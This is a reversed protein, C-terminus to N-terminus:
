VCCCFGQLKFVFTSLSTCYIVPLPSFRCTQLEAFEQKNDSLVFHLRVKSVYRFSIQNLPFEQFYSYYFNMKTVIYLFCM